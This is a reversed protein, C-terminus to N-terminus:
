HKAPNEKKKLYESVAKNSELLLAIWQTSPSEALAIKLTMTLPVSLLMGVPGLVWGWFILSLFVVLPSLGVSRGMVRPETISGIIVNVALFGAATALASGPGFQILALLVPPVAAILSGVTPVFNLIFALIGWLVPYDIGQVQLFTFILLGTILSTILKIALYRNVGKIVAEYTDLSAEGKNSIARLKDPVGAAELILFVFMLVILFTDKLMGGLSNLTAAAYQLAKGPDFIGDLMSRDIDVGYGSLWTYVSGAITQLQVQYQPLGRTFGALATGLSVFGVIWIGTVLAVILLLSVGDPVGRKGLWMLLPLCTVALFVALLFPVILVGAAKMGAIVVVFAAANILGRDQLPQM